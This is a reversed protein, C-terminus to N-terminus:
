ADYHHGAKQVEFPNRAKGHWRGSILNFVPIFIGVLLVSFIIWFINHERAIQFFLTAISWGLITLYIAALWGYAPGIERVIAGFAALCPFYILVFLLYAFARPWDNGFSARLQGFTTSQAGIEEAITDTDENLLSIGLPDVLASFVGSLGEPISAFADGVAEAISFGSEDEGAAAMQGYLGSITGVIAEKAFLGTMLGVTAPWNDKEIGMPRLVPTVAQSAVALVSNSNDENGFSGDAGMSNFFALVLVAITIVKGARLMFVKLRNWTRKMIMTFRPVHYPPLEMVFHSAEGKFLTGKLILGTLIALIIGSLYLAFVIIGSQPGFFAAGFLAYVPLRAGCSMFPAMFVTLYRDKRNELTRTAMVAPVTCGFGVLMSVFAKGPLGLMRMFRDMVFAARAMYGSDELISLMLFMFFIVPVFTAVTQIGAGVGGALLIILWQPMSAMEMLTGLGDVFVAGFLIDFFDIFAGGIHIVVWFLLYMIGLFIPIGAWKNLVIRDIKETSAAIGRKKNLATNLLTSIFTFKAEAIIVDPTENLHTEIAKIGQQIEEGSLVGSQIVKTRTEEDEELLMLASQRPHQEIKESWRSILEEVADPYCVPSQTEQLQGLNEAILRRLNRIDAGSLANIAIVPIKMADSLAKVNIDIGRKEALDKMSLVLITPKGMELLTTTLFLNRELNSADAINVVLSTEGSLVHNRAIIEDESGSNLSYIGPLDVVETETAGVLRGTKKEVTVGPWNGIQQNSGTLGNFITSKGCNPNGVVAISARNM